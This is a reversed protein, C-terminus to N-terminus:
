YMFDAILALHDTGQVRTRHLTPAPINPTTLLLDIPALALPNPHTPLWSGALHLHQKLPALSPDWPVTNLDGVLILPSPLNATALTALEANRQQMAKPTYPSQTHALLLYFPKSPHAVHYLNLRPALSRTLTIPWRSYIATPLHYGSHIDKSLAHYPLPPAANLATQLEDNVEVLTLIDAHTHQAFAARAALNAHNYWFANLHALRLTATAPRPPPQTPLSLTALAALLLTLIPACLTFILATRPTVTHTAYAALTALWLLLTLTIPYAMSLLIMWLWQILLMPNATLETLHPM